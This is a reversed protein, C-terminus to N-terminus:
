TEVASLGKRANLMYRACIIKMIISKLFIFIQNTSKSLICKDIQSSINKLKCMFGMGLKLASFTSVYILILAKVPLFTM